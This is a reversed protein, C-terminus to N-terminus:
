CVCAGPFDGERGGSSIHHVALQTSYIGWGVVREDVRRDCRQKTMKKHIGGPFATVLKASNPAM